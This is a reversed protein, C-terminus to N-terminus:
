FFWRAGLLVGTADQYSRGTDDDYEFQLMAAYVDISLDDFSQVAGFGYTRTRAGDTVFDEGRYYDVFLSTKGAAVFDARWGAKIYGYQPGDIRSGAAVSLNLGSPDHYVTASGIVREQDDANDNFQWGYGLATQISVDGVDGTWRLAVDAYDADDNENLVNIGYSTSFVFGSRSPTDYRARFLRAVNFSSNVQGVTVGTLNGNTDRFQFSGFGDSADTPSVVFTFSSDLGAAGDAATSGQGLSLTGYDTDFAAEFWRLWTRDWDIWQPRDTQSILASNRLSLGTEFRLRLTAGDLPQLIRFGLRTNWNGNDVLGDTTAEGDDFSQYTPTFQGYFTVDGGSRNRFVFREGDEPLTITEEGEDAESLVSTQALGAGAALLMSGTFLLRVFM